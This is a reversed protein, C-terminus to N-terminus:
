MLVEIPQNTGSLEIATGTSTSNNAKLAGGEGAGTSHIHATVGVSSQGGGGFSM